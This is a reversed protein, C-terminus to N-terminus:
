PRARAQAAGTESADFKLELKYALAIFLSQVLSMTSTLSRFGFTSSEQVVLTASAVRAIPSMQSDSIAIVRAGRAVAETVTAVTEEAYPIFSIAIMVDGAGLSRLQGEQMHGLGSMWHVAKRTHQLAYALYAGVPFSRRSAVVWVAPTEELLSVAADFAKPDLDRSLAELSAIGGGIVEHSLTSLSLNEPTSEILDRIRDQYSRGPAIQQAMGDRFLQQM